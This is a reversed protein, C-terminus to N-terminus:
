IMRSLEKMDSIERNCLDKFIEMQDKVAKEYIEIEKTFDTKKEDKNGNQIEDSNQNKIEAQKSALSRTAKSVEAKVFGKGTGWYLNKKNKKEWYMEDQIKTVEPSFNMEYWELSNNIKWAYKNYAEESKGAKLAEITKRCLNINEFAAEHGVIPREYMLKLFKNQAFDFALLSRETLKAGKEKYKAM